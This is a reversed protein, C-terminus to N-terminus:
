DRPSPSTYLLCNCLTMLWHSLVSLVELAGQATQVPQLPHVDAFGPMRAVKENLRPNHKMTCSGLPYVGLDIAYNKQSLRVYHRLTEPESLGPLGIEGQRAHSGLRSKTGKPEPLDVGTRRPTGTEFILQTAQNLAQSGSVTAVRNMNAAQPTTTRGETKM